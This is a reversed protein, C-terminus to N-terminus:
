EEYIERYSSNPRKNYDRFQLTINVFIQRRKSIEQIIQFPQILTEKYHIKTISYIKKKWDNM